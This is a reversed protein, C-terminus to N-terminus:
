SVVAFKEYTIDKWPVNKFMGAWLESNLYADIADASSFFYCGGGINKNGWTACTFHKIICGDVSGFTQGFKEKAGTETLMAKFNPPDMLVDSNILLVAKCDAFYDKGTVKLVEASNDVYVEYLRGDDGTPPSSFAALVCNRAAKKEGGPPTAKIEEGKLQLTFLAGKDQATGAPMFKIYSAIPPAKKNAVIYEAIATVPDHPRASLIEAIAAQIVDQVGYTALYDKAEMLSTV